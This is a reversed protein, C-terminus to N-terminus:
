IYNRHLSHKRKTAKVPVPKKKKFVDILGRSFEIEEKLSNVIKLADAGDSCEVKQKATYINDVKYIKKISKVASGKEFFILLVICPKNNIFGAELQITEKGVSHCKIAIM